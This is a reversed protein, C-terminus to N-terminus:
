KNENLMQQPEANVQWVQTENLYPDSTCRFWGTKGEVRFVDGELLDSLKMAAEGLGTFKFVTTDSM